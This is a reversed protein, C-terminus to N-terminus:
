TEAPRRWVYRVDPTREENGSGDTLEAVAFGNREYFRRARDNVQFTWLQLAGESREKSLDLLRRGIGEGLRDPAVYLQDVWGPTLSMIAVVRGDDTAVWGETKAILVNRVYGRVEDDSHAFPVTPLAIRRSTIFVATAAEADADTARRLEVGNSM